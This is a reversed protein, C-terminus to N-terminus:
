IQRLVRGPSSDGGTGIVQPVDFEIDSSSRQLSAGSRISSLRQAQANSGSDSSTKSPLNVGMPLSSTSLM